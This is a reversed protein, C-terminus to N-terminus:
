SLVLDFKSIHIAESEDYVLLKVVSKEFSLM